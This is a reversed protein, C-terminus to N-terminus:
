LDMHGSTTYDQVIYSSTTLGWVGLFYMTKFPFKKNSKHSKSKRSTKWSRLGPTFRSSGINMEWRSCIHWMGQGEYGGKNSQLFLIHLYSNSENSVSNHSITPRTFVTIFKHQAAICFTSSRFRQTAYFCSCVRLKELFVSCWRKTIQTHYHLTGYCNSHTGAAFEWSKLSSMTGDRWLELTTIYHVMITTKHELQEHVQDQRILYVWIQQRVGAWCQEHQDTTVLYTAHSTMVPVESESANEFTTQAKIFRTQVWGNIGEGTTVTQDCVM